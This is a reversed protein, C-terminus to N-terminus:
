DDLADAVRHGRNAALYRGVRYLIINSCEKVAVDEVGDWAIIGLAFLKELCAHLYVQGVDAKAADDTTGLTAVHPVDQFVDDVEFERTTATLYVNALYAIGLNVKNYHGVTLLSVVM